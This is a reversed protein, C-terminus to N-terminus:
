SIVYLTNPDKTALADYASQTISLLKLSNAVPAATSDLWETGNWYVNKQIDTDFAEIPVNPLTLAQREATTVNKNVLRATFMAWTSTANAVKDVMFTYIVGDKIVEAGKPLLFSLINASSDVHLTTGRGDMIFTQTGEARTFIDGRSFDGSIKGFSVARSASINAIINNNVVINNEFVITTLGSAFSGLGFLAAESNVDIVCNRVEFWGYGRKNNFLRTGAKNGITVKFTCNDYEMIPPTNSPTYVDLVSGSIDIGTPGNLTYFSCRSFKVRQQYSTSRAKITSPIDDVWDFYFQCNDFRMDSWLISESKGAFRFICNSFISNGTINLISGNFFTNDVQLTNNASTTCGEGLWNLRSIKCDSIFTHIQKGERETQQSSVPEIVIYYVNCNVIQINPCIALPYIDERTGWDNQGDLGIINDFYLNKNITVNGINLGSGVKNKVEINRFYVNEIIGTYISNGSSIKFSCNSEWAFATEPTATNAGKNKDFTLDSVDVLEATYSAPTTRGEYPTVYFTRLWKPNGGAAIYRDLSGDATKIITQGIGAGRMVFKQGAGSFNIYTSAGSRGEDYVYTGALLQIPVGCNVAANCASQFAENNYTTGDAKGGFWEIYLNAVDFSGGMSLNDKFIHTQSANIKTLNGVIEGNALSGGDFELVCGAPLTIAQGNLDYDYQIVYITNTTNVMAQTLVNKNTGSVEVINKPLNKRGLGSFASADYAKDGTNAAATAGAAAGSRITSLDPITAQKGALATNLESATPLAGLKTVLAATMGSQIAAWQADTFPTSGVTYEFLWQTGNFKYRHYYNDGEDPAIVFGYANKQPNQVALLEVLTNFTGVFVADNPSISKRPLAEAATTGDGVIYCDFNGQGAANMSNDSSVLIHEGAAPTELQSLNNLNCRKPKAKLGVIQGM